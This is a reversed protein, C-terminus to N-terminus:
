HNEAFERSSILAWVFERLGAERDGRAALISKLDRVEEADPPRALAALYFETFIAEDTAGAELLKALRSKPQGLRNV